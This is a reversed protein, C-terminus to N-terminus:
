ISLLTQFYRLPLWFGYISSPSVVSYGFSFPCFSLCRDVFCVCLVLSRTMFVFEVLLLPHIWTSRFPLCNVYTMYTHGQLNKICRNEVLILFFEICCDVVCAVLIWWFLDVVDVALFSSGVRGSCKLEGRNKKIPSTNSSRLKGHLANYIATQEKKRKRLAM